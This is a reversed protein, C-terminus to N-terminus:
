YKCVQENNSEDVDVTASIKKTVVPLPAVTTKKSVATEELAALKKDRKRQKKAKAADTLTTATAAVAPAAEVIPKPSIPEVLNVIKENTKAPVVSVTTKKEKKSKRAKKVPSKDEPLVDAINNGAAAKTQTLKENSQRADMTASQLHQQM